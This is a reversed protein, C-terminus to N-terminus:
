TAARPDATASAGSLWERIRISHHCNPGAPISIEAFRGTFYAREGELVAACSVGPGELCTCAWRPVATAGARYVECTPIGQELAMGAVARTYAINFEGYSLTIALAPINIRVPYPKGKKSIQMRTPDWLKSANMQVALWTMDRESLAVPISELFRPWGSSNLDAGFPWNARPLRRELDGVERTWEKLMRERVGSYELHDLQLAPAGIM